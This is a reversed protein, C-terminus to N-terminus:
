VQVGAYSISETVDPAVSYIISRIREFEAIEEPKANALYEAITTM